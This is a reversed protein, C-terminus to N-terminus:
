DRIFDYINMYDQGPHNWSYDTRMANRMLDRFHEPYQYYCSIARILASDLGPQDYNEFVYGNREHLPRHSHDKDFVTDALGGVSRVVPITGYRLSILQTLGCPEFQSPVLMIDSGAYILHSLEENYGIELHCDPSDNLM